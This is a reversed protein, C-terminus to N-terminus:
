SRNGHIKAVSWCQFVSTGTKAVVILPPFPDDVYHFAVAHYVPQWGEVVLYALTKALLKRNDVLRRCLRAFSRRCQWLDTGEM